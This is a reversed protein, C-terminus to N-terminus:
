STNGQVAEPPALWRVLRDEVLTWVKSIQRIQKQIEQMDETALPLPVEANGHLQLNGCPYQSTLEHRCPVHFESHQCECDLAHGAIPKWHNKKDFNESQSYPPGVDFAAPQRKKIPSRSNNQRARCGFAGSARRPSKPSHCPDQADASAVRAIPLAARVSSPRPRAQWSVNQLTGVPMHATANGAPGM